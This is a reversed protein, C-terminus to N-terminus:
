SRILQVVCAVGVSVVDMSRKLISPKISWAEECEVPITGPTGPHKCHRNYLQIRESGMLM